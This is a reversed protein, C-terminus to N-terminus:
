VNMLKKFDYPFVEHCKDSAFKLVYVPHNISRLLDKLTKPEKLMFYYLSLTRKVGDVILARNLVSHYAVRIAIPQQLGEKLSCICDKLEDIRTGYSSVDVKKDIFDNAFDCVRYNYSGQENCGSRGEENITYWVLYHDSLKKVDSDSRIRVRECTGVSGLWSRAFTKGMYHLPSAVTM